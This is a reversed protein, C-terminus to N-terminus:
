LCFRLYDSGIGSTRARQAQHNPNKEGFFWESFPVITEKLPWECYIKGRFSKHLFSLYLKEISTLPPLGSLQCEPQNHRTPQNPVDM